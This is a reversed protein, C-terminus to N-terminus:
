FILIKGKYIVKDKKYLWLHPSGLLSNFQKSDGAGWGLGGAASHRRRLRAADRVRELAGSALFGAAEGDDVCRGRAGVALLAAESAAVEEGGDAGEGAADGGREAAGGGIGAAVALM